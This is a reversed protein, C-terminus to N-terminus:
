RPGAMDAIARDRAPYSEPALVEAIADPLPLARGEALMAEFVADGLAARASALTRVHHPRDTPHLATAGARELLAAASGSLRAALAPQGQTIALGALAAVCAAVGRLDEIERNLDLSESIHRLAEDHQAEAHAVYGLHRLVYATQPKDGVQRCHALSEEYCQRARASDGHRFAATGLFHLATGLGWSDATARFLAISEQMVANATEMEGLDSLVAGLISLM